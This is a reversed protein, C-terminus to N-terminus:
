PAEAGVEQTDPNSREGKKYRGGKGQRVLYVKALKGFFFLFEKTNVTYCLKRIV